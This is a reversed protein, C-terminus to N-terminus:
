RLCNKLRKVVEDKGLINYLAPLDPGHTDGIMALRLPFYLNKGKVTLKESTKQILSNIQDPKFTPDKELEELWFQFIRQSDPATLYYEDDSSIEYIEFFDRYVYPLESLLNVREKLLEVIAILRQDDGPDIGAETFYKRSRDAINKAPLDKIYKNNMWNLKEHDFVAGAKNIRKLSFAKELQQLSFIEENGSPHWGLLAVFNLLSEPLYGKNLFDEVAVDGQRKSLKSKDPNLLLPLHAMKPVKWGFCDYLHLHKPVSSLWEEGRIIHSIQMLHDDVVNALHYTPFGDSKILVQDDVMEWPFTVKERVIDYFTVEGEDPVKLRIVHKENAEVRKRAESPPINRCRKDYMPHENRSIQERRMADLEEQTCFCYYADGKDLLYDVQKRYLDLRQSQYYPGYEGAKDPGEDYDLGVTKLTSVLNEVAGEVFRNRDTDEIRLIFRGGTKQAYLYNYLATRLSGVHLYGTPSPAFRVRIENNM